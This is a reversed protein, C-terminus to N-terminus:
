SMAKNSTASGSPSPTLRNSRSRLAFLSVGTIMILPWAVISAATRAVRNPAMSKRSFGNDVSRSSSTM